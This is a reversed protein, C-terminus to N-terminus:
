KQVKRWKKGIWLYLVVTGEVCFYRYHLLDIVGCFICLLEKQINTHKYVSSSIQSGMSPSSDILDTIGHLIKLVQVFEEIMQPLEPSRFFVSADKMDAGLRGTNIGHDAVRKMIAVCTVKRHKPKMTHLVSCEGIEKPIVATDLKLECLNKM